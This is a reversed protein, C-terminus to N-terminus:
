PADRKTRGFEFMEWHSYCLIWDAHAKFVVADDRSPYFIDNWIEFLRKISIELVDSRDFVVFVNGEEAALTQKLWATAVEENETSCREEFRFRGAPLGYTKRSLVAEADTWTKAAVDEPLWATLPVVDALEKSRWNM